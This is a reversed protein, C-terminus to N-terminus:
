GLPHGGSMRGFRKTAFTSWCLRELGTCQGAIVSRKGAVRSFSNNLGNLNQRSPMRLRRTTEVEEQKPIPRRGM